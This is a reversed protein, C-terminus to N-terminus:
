PNPLTPNFEALASDAWVARINPEHHASFIVTSAGLSIGHLGIQNSEFGIKQLFDYAGLVDKYSQLGLDEYKSVTDSQGYNRLDITLANIKEKILLSAILNVESKCKGNPNIGHVVIVIPKNQFYYFLWGSIKINRDRSPFYVEQWEDLHYKSSDFTKRLKNQAIISYDQYDIQTSWTNPLSGEHAGCSHDIKLIDYAIYM